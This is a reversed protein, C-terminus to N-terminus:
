GRGAPKSLEVLNGDPDRVYLSRIPAQAGTRDVPGLEIDIGARALESAAQEVSADILLCVDASGPIPRDACPQIEGGAQHLNIKQAGFHLAVRGGGFTEKRMGLTMYFATTAEIDRVTLVFHDIGIVRM